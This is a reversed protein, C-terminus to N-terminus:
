GMNHSIQKESISHRNMWVKEAWRFVHSYFMSLDLTTSRNSTNDLIYSRLTELETDVINEIKSIFITLKSMELILKADRTTSSKGIDRKGSEIQPAIM